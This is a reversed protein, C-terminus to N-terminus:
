LCSNKRDWQYVAEVGHAMLKQILSDRGKEFFHIIEERYLPLLTHFYIPWEGEIEKGGDRYPMTLAEACQPLPPVIMVGCYATSKDYPLIETHAPVGTETFMERYTDALDEESQNPFVLWQGIYYGRQMIEKVFHRMMPVVWGFPRGEGYEVTLQADAPLHMVIEAYGTDLSAPTMGRFYSNGFSVLTQYPVAATPKSIYIEPDGADNSEAPIMYQIPGYFTSIHAEADQRDTVRIRPNREVYADPESSWALRFYFGKLGSKEVRQKFEDSVYTEVSIIPDSQINYDYSLTKFIHQRTVKDEIFEVKDFGGYKDAISNKLDICELINLVNIIYYKENNYFVPLLEVKDVLLDSLVEAAHKNLVLYTLDSAISYIDASEGESHKKLDIEEWFEALSSGQNINTIVGNEKAVDLLENDCDETMKWIRM